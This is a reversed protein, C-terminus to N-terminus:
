TRRRWVPMMLGVLFSALGLTVAVLTVSSVALLDEFGPRLSWTVQGLGRAGGGVTVTLVGATLCAASAWGNWGVRVRRVPGSRLPADQSVVPTDLRAIRAMVTIATSSPAPPQALGRLQDTLAHSARLAQGCTACSSAHAWAAALHAAPYDAFPGADILGLVHRCTM